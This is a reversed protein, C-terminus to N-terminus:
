GFTWDFECDILQEWGARLDFEFVGCRSIIAADSSRLVCGALLQKLKEIVHSFFSPSLTAERGPALLM